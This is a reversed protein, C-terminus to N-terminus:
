QPAAAAGERASRAGFRYQIGALLPAIQYDELSQAPLMYSGEVNLSVDRAVYVDVGAGLRGAIEVQRGGGKFYANLAGLGLM